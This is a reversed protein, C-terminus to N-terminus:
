RLRPSAPQRQAIPQAVGAWKLATAQLFLLLPLYFLNGLLTYSFFPLAQWYCEIFGGLNRPYLEGALWVGFNSSLFFVIAGLLAAMAVRGPSCHKSLWRGVPIALIYGLYVFAMVLPHYFGLFLDSLVWAAPPLLWAHRSPLCCGSFLGIAGLATFNPPHPWLRTCLALLILTGGLLATMHRQSPHHASFREGAIKKRTM